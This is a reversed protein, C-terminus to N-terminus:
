SKKNIVLTVEGVTFGFKSVKAKNIVTNEDILYMWDDFTVDYTDDDVSLRMTYQWNLAYGSVRGTAEGVVDDATGTYRDGGLSIITWIRKETEGDAYYFTEDLIGKNGNWQGTMEVNFRRVVKDSYNQFMGTATLEGSFFEQLNFKPKTSAYDSLSTSCGALFGFAAAVTLLRLHSLSKFKINLLKIIM